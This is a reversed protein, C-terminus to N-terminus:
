LFFGRHETALVMLDKGQALNWFCALTLVLFLIGPFFVWLARLLNRVLTTLRKLLGTIAAM